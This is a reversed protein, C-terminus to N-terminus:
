NAFFIWKLLVHASTTPEFLVLLSVLGAPWIFLHTQKLQWYKTAVVLLVLMLLLVTLRVM